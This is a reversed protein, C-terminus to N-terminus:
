GAPGLRAIFLSVNCNTFPEVALTGELVGAHINLSWGYEAGLNCLFPIVASNGGDPTAARSDIFVQGGLDLQYDIIGSTGTALTAAIACVGSYLGPEPAILANDEVDFTWAPDGYTIGSWPVWFPSTLPGAAFGSVVAFRTPGGGGGVVGGALALRGKIATM